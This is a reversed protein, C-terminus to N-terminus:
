RGLSKATVGQLGFDTNAIDLIMIRVPDAPIALTEEVVSSLEQILQEKQEETRGAILFAQITPGGVSVDAGEDDLTVGDVCVHAKPVEILFIRIASRPAGLSSAVADTMRRLFLRKRDVPHGEVLYVNLNPM